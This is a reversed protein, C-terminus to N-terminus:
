LNYACGELNNFCRIRVTFASSDEDFDSSFGYTETFGNINTDIEILPSMYSRYEKSLKMSLKSEYLSTKVKDNSAECNWNDNFRDTECNTEDFDQAHRTHWLM